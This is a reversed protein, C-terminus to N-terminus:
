PKIPTRSSETPPPIPRPTSDDRIENPAVAAPLAPVDKAPTSRGGLRNAMQLRAQAVPSMLEAFSRIEADKSQAGLAYAAVSAENISILREIWAKGFKVGSLPTMEDAIAKTVTPSLTVRKTRALRLLERNEAIQTDEIAEAMAKIQESNSQRKALDILAAQDNGAQSALHLFQLDRGALESQIIGRPEKSGPEGVPEMKIISPYPGPVTSRTKKVPERAGAFSVLAFSGLVSLTFKM